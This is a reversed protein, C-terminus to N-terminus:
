TGFLLQKSAYYKSSYLLSTKSILSKTSHMSIIKINFTIIEYNFIIKIELIYKVKLKIVEVLIYM